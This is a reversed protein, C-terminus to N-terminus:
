QLRLYVRSGKSATSPNLETVSIREAEVKGTQLLYAKVNRSRERALTQFDALTIEVTELLRGKRDLQTTSDLPTPKRMLATAGKEFDFHKWPSRATQSNTAASKPGRTFANAMDNALHRQNTREAIAEPLFAQAYAESLFAAYEEPALTVEDASLRAQGAPLLLEWKRLRFQKRLKEARLADGDTEADASGELELQLEPREYLGKVLANLKEITAPLLNTSGPEFEQFSLEEGKGGFIASLAAFPSTVIKNFVSGIAHAIVKGMRFEPDDLSGDIPVELEIRGNRDKLVAIALRVPLTTADSSAVKEGLTLHDLTIRNQSQLKRDALQHSLKLSLKGKKLHYGLYKASYPDEPLLDMNKVVLKLETPQKQNWPNIKGTIEALATKDVTGRLNVVAREPDDSSLGAVTGGLQEILINVNPNLSRDIFHMNANSVVVSGISVKPRVAVAIVNTATTNTVPLPSPANTGGWRLASMLNITRNTEIILRVFADAVRVETASLVPPNLNAAIGSVRLANWKLLSETEIREATSFKDLWADGEFRVEPLENTTPRWHVTGALGLKSGLVFIDLHPELYPALPRLDLQNLALKIEASPPSLGAQLDARVTGNTDWRM